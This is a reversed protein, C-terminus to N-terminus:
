PGIVSTRRMPTATDCPIHARNTMDRVANRLIGRQGRKKLVRRLGFPNASFPSTCVGPRSRVGRLQHLRERIRHDAAVGVAGDDVPVPRGLVDVAIGGALREAPAGGREELGAERRRQQLDGLLECVEPAPLPAELVPALVPPRHRDLAAPDAADRDLPRSPRRALRRRGLARQIAPRCRGRGSRSRGARGWLGLAADDVLM